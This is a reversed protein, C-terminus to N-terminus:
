IVETFKIKETLMDTLDIEFHRCIKLMYTASPLARGEEWAGVRSRTVRLLNAIEQQTWGRASRLRIMNEIFVSEPKKKM